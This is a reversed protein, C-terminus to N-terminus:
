GSNALINKLNKVANAYDVASIEEGNYYSAVERKGDELPLDFVLLKRQGKDPKVELLKYGSAALWSASYLDSTSFHINDIESRTNMHNEAM